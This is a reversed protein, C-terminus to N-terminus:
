LCQRASSCCNSSSLSSSEGLSDAVKRDDPADGLTDRDAFSRQPGTTPLPQASQRRLRRGSEAVELYFPLGLPSTHRDAGDSCLQRNRTRAAKQVEIRSAM